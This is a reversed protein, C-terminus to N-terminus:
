LFIDGQLLSIRHFPIERGSELVLMQRREDLRLLRGTVTLFVGGAKKEDPRFYTVTLMPVSNQLSSLQRLQEDLQAIGDGALEAPAQTWRGTERIVDEYGTLAAFPSFQAARDKRAMRPRQTQRPYTMDLLDEYGGSM